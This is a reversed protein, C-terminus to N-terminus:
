KSKNFLIAAEIGPFIDYKIKSVFPFSANKSVPIGKGEYSICQPVSIVEENSLTIWWGNPLRRPFQDSFIGMSRHGVITVRKLSKMGLVFTEAASATLSSTLIVIPSTTNHLPKPNVYISQIPSWKKEKYFAHKKYLIRRKKIFFSTILKGIDDDGGMNLRTDIIILSTKHSTLGQLVDNLFNKVVSPSIQMSSINIYFVSPYKILYGAFLDNNYYINSQELQNFLSHKVTPALVDDIYNSVDLHTHHLYNYSKLESIISKKFSADLHFNFYKKGTDKLSEMISLHNDKIQKIMKILFKFLLYRNNPANKCQNQWSHYDVQHLNFYPYHQLFYHTMVHCNDIGSATSDPHPQLKRMTRKYRMENFLLRGNKDITIKKLENIPIKEPVSQAVTSINTIQYTSIYTQNQICEISIINGLENNLWKGKLPNSIICGLCIYTKVCSFLILLRVTKKM